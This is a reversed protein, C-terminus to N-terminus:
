RPHTLAALSIPSRAIALLKQVKDLPMALRDALEEPMPERGIECLTWRSTRVMRNIMAILQEPMRITM